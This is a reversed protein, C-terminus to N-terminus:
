YDFRHSIDMHLFNHSFLFIVKYKVYDKQSEDRKISQEKDIYHLVNKKKKNYKYVQIIIKLIIFYPNTNTKEKNYYSYINTYM